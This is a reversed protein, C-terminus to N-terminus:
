IVKLLYSNFGGSVATNAGDADATVIIDTNKPLILPPTLELDMDHQSSVGHKFITKFVGGITRVRFRIVASAATKDDIGAFIHTIAVYDVSSISTAAKQTQNEGIPMMIHINADTDPVGSSITDDEYGYIIGANDTAGENSIRSIRALPTGLVVKNQGNMTVSQIVFTLDSGSITHGEVQYSQTDGANSSSVTDIANTSVYTEETTGTPLTMITAESTGVLENEGFKLISKDKIAVTDGFTSEISRKAYLVWPDLDIDDLEGAYKKVVM